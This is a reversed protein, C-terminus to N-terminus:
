KIKVKKSEYTPTPNEKPMNITLIGEKMEADVDDSKIEDPLNFNRYYNFSREKKLWNKGKEEEKTSKQASVEINHPTVEVNIDDKSIGPLEVNMEYSDGHDVVDALPPRFQEEWNTMPREPSTRYFLDNFSSRFQNFLRDMEDWPAFRSRDVLGEGKRGKSEVPIKERKRAM